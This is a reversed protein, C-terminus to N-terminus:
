KKDNQNIEIQFNQKDIQNQILIDTFAIIIFTLLLIFSMFIIKVIKVIINVIFGIIM